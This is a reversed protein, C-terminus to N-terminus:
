FLELVQGARGESLALVFSKFYHRATLIPSNQYLNIFHFSLKTTKAAISLTPKNSSPLLRSIRPIAVQLKAFVDASKHARSSWGVQRSPSDTQVANLLVVAAPKTSSRGLDLLEKFV